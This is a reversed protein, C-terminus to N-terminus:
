YMLAQYFTVQIFLYSKDLWAVLSSGVVTKSSFEVETNKGSIQHLCWRKKISSSIWLRLIGWKEYSAQSAQPRTSIPHAFCASTPPCMPPAYDQQPEATGDLEDWIDELLSVYINFDM